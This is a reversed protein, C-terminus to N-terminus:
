KTNTGKAQLACAATKVDCTTGQKESETGRIKAQFKVEQKAAAGAGVAAPFTPAAAKITDTADACASPTYKTAIAGDVAVESVAAGMWSRAEALCATNASRQM